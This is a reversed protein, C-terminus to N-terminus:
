VHRLFLMKKVCLVFITLFILFIACIGVDCKTRNAPEGRQNSQAAIPTTDNKQTDCHASVSQKTTDITTTTDHLQTTARMYRVRTMTDRQSLQVLSDIIFLDMSM